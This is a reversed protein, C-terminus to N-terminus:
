ARRDTEDSIQYKYATRVDSCFKDLDSKQVKKTFVLRNMGKSGEVEFFYREKLTDFIISGGIAGFFIMGLEYRFGAPTVFFLIIGAIGVL